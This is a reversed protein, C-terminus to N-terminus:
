LERLIDDFKLRIGEVPENICEFEVGDSLLRLADAISKDWNVRKTADIKESYWNNCYSHTVVRRIGSNIIVEACPTCPTWTCYLTSMPLISGHGARVAGFVADREAHTLVTYKEPRGFFRKTELPMEQEFRGNFGYHARNAGESLIEFTGDTDRFVVLAGTNTNEDQSLNYATNFARKLFHLDEEKM